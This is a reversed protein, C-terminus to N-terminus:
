EDGHVEEADAFWEADLAERAESMTAPQPAQADLDAQIDADVAARIGSDDMPVLGRSFAWRLATKRYMERPWKSWVTDSQAARRRDEIQARDLWDVRGVGDHRTVIYYGLLDSIPLGGPVRPPLCREGDQLALAYAEAQGEYGAWVPVEVLHVGARRALKRYGTPGITSRVHLQGRSRQPILYVEPHMGGPQLDSFLCQALAAAVSQPSCETLQPAANAATRFALAFQAARRKGEDTGLVAVLETEAMGSVLSRFRQAPSQAARQVENGSM